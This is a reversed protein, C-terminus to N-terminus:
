KRLTFPLGALDFSYCYNLLFEKMVSPENTEYFDVLKIRFEALKDEPPPSLTGAGNKILAFNAFFNSTRKNGDRFSQRRCSWLYLELAREVVDDFSKILNQLELYIIETDPEPPRWSTGSIFVSRSRFNGMENLELNAMGFAVKGHIEQLLDLGLEREKFLDENLLFEWSRKLNVVDNLEEPTINGSNKYLILSFVVERM